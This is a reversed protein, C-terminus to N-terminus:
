FYAVFKTIKQRNIIKKQDKKKNDKLKKIYKKCNLLAESSISTTM